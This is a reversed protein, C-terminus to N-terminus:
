PPAVIGALGKGQHFDVAFDVIIEQRLDSRQWLNHPHIRKPELNELMQAMTPITMAVLAVASASGLTRSIVSKGATFGASPVVSVLPM